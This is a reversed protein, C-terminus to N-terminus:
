DDDVIDADVEIPTGNQEMREVLELLDETSGAFYNNTTNGGSNQPQDGQGGVEATIDKVSKHLKMLADNADTMQKMYGSLVEYARPSESEQAVKALGGLAKVNTEIIQKLNTRVFEYDDKANQLVSDHHPESLESRDVVMPPHIPEDDEYDHVSDDLFLDIPDSM